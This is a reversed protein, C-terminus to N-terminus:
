IGPSLWPADGVPKPHRGRHDEYATIGAALQYPGRIRQLETSIERYDLGPDDGCDCCIIEYLSTCGGEARGAVIRSPQRRLVLTWDVGPRGFITGMGAMLATPRDPKNM